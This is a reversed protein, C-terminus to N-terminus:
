EKIRENLYEDAKAIGSELTDANNIIENIRYLWKKRTLLRESEWFLKLNLEKAYEHYLSGNDFGRRGLIFMAYQAYNLEQIANDIHQIAKENLKRPDAVSGNTIQYIIEDNKIM